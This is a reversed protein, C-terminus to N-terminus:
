AEEEESSDDEDVEDETEEIDYGQYRSIIDGKTDSTPGDLIDGGALLTFILTSLPLLTM